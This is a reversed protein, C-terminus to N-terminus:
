FIENKERKKASATYFIDFRAFDMEISFSARRSNARYGVSIIADLSYFTQERKVQRNGEPQVTRIKRIASDPM